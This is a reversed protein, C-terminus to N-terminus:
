IFLKFKNLNTNVAILSDVLKESLKKGAPMATMKYINQSLKTIYLNTTCYLIVTMNM